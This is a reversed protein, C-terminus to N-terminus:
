FKRRVWRIVESAAIAMFAAFCNFFIDIPDFVRDPIYLQIFEDFIGIASAMLFSILAPNPIEKAYKKREVLAKHIFIVLISYEFLHSREAFGLRAYLMLYVASLGIWVTIEAIGPKRILGHLVVTAAIALMTYFFLAGQFDPDIASVLHGGYVLTSFIAVLVLLTYLWLRKERSSTFLSM